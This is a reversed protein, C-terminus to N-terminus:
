VPPGQILLFRNFNPWGVKVVSYGWSELKRVTLRVAFNRLSCVVYLAPAGFSLPTPFYAIKLWYTAAETPTLSLLSGLSNLRAIIKSTNWGTHFDCLRVSSMCDCLRAKRLTARYYTIFIQMYTIYKFVVSVPRCKAASLMLRDENFNKKHVGSNKNM